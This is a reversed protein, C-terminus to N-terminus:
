ISGNIYRKTLLRVWLLMRRHEGGKVINYFMHEFIYIGSICFINVCFFM